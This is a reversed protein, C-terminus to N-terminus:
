GPRPRRVAVASSRAASAARRCGPAETLHNGQPTREFLRVRRNRRASSFDELTGRRVDAGAATLAAASADSRAGESEAAAARLRQGAAPDREDDAVDPPM